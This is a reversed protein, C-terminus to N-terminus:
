GRNTINAGTARRLDRDADDRGQEAMDAEVTAEDEAECPEVRHGTEDRSVDWTVLCEAGTPVEQAAPDGPGAAECAAELRDHDRAEARGDLAALELAGDRLRLEGAADVGGGDGISRPSLDRYSKM